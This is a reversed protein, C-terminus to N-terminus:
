APILMRDEGDDVPELLLETMHDVIRIVCSAIETKRNRETL